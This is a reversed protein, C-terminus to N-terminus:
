ESARIGAAKIVKAWQPTESEIVAAFEAPSGGILDLGLEALRRKRSEQGMGDTSCSKAKRGTAKNTWDALTAATVQDTFGAPDTVLSGVLAKIKTCVCMQFTAKCQQSLSNASIADKEKMGAAIDECTKRAVACEGTAGTVGAGFKAGPFITTLNTVAAVNFDALQKVIPDPESTESGAVGRALPNFASYRVFITDKAAFTPTGKLERFSGEGDVQYQIKQEQTTAGAVVTTGYKVTIDDRVRKAELLAKTEDAAYASLAIYLLPAVILIRFRM